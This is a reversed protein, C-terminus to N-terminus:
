RDLFLVARWTRREEERLTWTDSEEFLQTAKERNHLGMITGLRAANAISLYGAPYIGHGIEYTSILLAAQLLPLSISGSNELFAYLQKATGYLQTQPDEELSPITTVLKMCLLLLDIVPNFELPLDILRQTLRKQSLM